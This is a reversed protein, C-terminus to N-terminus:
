EKDSRGIVSVARYMKGECNWGSVDLTKDPNDTLYM